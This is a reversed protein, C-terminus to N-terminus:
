MTRRRSAHLSIMYSDRIPWNTGCTWCGPLREASCRRTNMRNGRTKSIAPATTKFSDYGLSYALRIVTTESVGAAQSIKVTTKMAAFELHEAIYDAVKKQAKSLEDYREQIKKCVSM